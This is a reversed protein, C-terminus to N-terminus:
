SVAKARATSKQESRREVFRDVANAILAIAGGVALPVTISVWTAPRTPLVLLTWAVAGPLAIGLFVSVYLIRSLNAISRLRNRLM